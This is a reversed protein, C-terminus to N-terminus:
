FIGIRVGVLDEIDSHGSLHPTPPGRGELGDYLESYFHGPKVPSMVAYALAVDASSAGFPGAKIM